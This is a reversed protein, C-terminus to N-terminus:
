WSRPLVGLSLTYSVPARSMPPVVQERVCLLYDGATLDRLVAIEAPDLRANTALPGDSVSTRLTWRGLESGSARFLRAVLLQSADVFLASGAPMRLLHCDETDAGSLSAAYVVSREVATRTTVARENPETEPTPTACIATALGQASVTTPLCRTPAPCLTRTGGLDCPDGARAVVRCTRRYRSFESCQLEGVCGSGAKACNAGPVTGAAVCQGGDARHEASCTDGDACVTSGGTPDCPMGRTARRVCSWGRDDCVAGEDCNPSAARCRGGATGDAHAVCRMTGASMACTTGAVCVDGPAACPEGEPLGTVCHYYERNCGVASGSAYGFCRLGADCARGYACYGGLAGDRVCRATGDVLQCSSGENCVDDAGGCLAGPELGPRCHTGRDCGLGPDCRPSCGDTNRCVGHNAGYAVCRPAGDVTECTASPDCYVRHDASEDCAEGVAVTRVCRYTSLGVCRFGAPCNYAPPGCAPESADNAADSATDTAADELPRADVVPADDRPADVPPADVAPSGDASADSSPASADADPTSDCASVGILLAGLTVARVTRDLSFGSRSTIM